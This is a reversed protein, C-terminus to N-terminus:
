IVDLYGRELVFYFCIIGIIYYFVDLNVKFNIFYKCCKVYGNNLVIMFLMLGKDNKVNVM